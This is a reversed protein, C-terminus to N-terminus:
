FIVHDVGLRIWKRTGRGAGIEIRDLGDRELFVPRRFASAIDGPTLSEGPGIRRMRRWRLLSAAAVVLGETFAWVNVPVTAGEGLRVWKGVDSWHAHCGEVERLFAM